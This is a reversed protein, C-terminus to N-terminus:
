LLGLPSSLENEIYMRSMEWRRMGRGKGLMEGGRGFRCM